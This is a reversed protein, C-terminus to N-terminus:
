HIPYVCTCGTAGNCPGTSTSCPVGNCCNADAACAQGYLSCTLGADTGSGADVAPPPAVPHCTGNTSGLPVTCQNGACCDANVTCAGSTPQCIVGGDMPPMATSCVFGGSGNPICPAGNCCDGTFACTQGPQQCAGTTKCRPVGLPDLQCDSASGLFGCCDNRASSISCAYNQYHCVNGEPNCGMPTRCIGVTEGANIACTVKGGGQPNTAGCCDSDQKCLDGLIHCGNAPQCVNVGTNVYPACLRSCCSGCGNCVTGDVGGQCNSPGSPPPGCTGLTAGSAVNCTGSCCASGATCVDGSQVCFSSNLSCRGNSCLQSCCESHAGCQNGATKCM